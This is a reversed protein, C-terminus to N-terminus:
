VECNDRAWRVATGWSEDLAHVFQMYHNAKAGSPPDCLTIGLRAEEKTQMSTQFPCGSVSCRAPHDSDIM